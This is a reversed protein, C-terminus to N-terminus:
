SGFRTALWSRRGTTRFRIVPKEMRPTRSSGHLVAMTLLPWGVVIGMGLLLPVVLHRVLRDLPSTRWRGGVAFTISARRKRWNSRVRAVVVMGLALCGVVFYLTLVHM